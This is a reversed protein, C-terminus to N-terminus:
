AIRLVEGNKEECEVQQHVKEYFARNGSESESEKKYIIKSKKNKRLLNYLVCM